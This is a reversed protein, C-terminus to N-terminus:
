ESVRAEEKRIVFARVCRTHYQNLDARLVEDQREIMREHPKVQEGPMMEIEAQVSTLPLGQEFVRIAEDVDEAEIMDPILPVSPVCSRRGLYPPWVPHLLAYECSLLAKEEGWILVTFEADQLYQRPTIITNGNSRTKGVANLLIGGTGQVTHFDTMLQGMHDARVAVHIRESLESLRKDGRPYGLCCGLMGIVASKTPMNSTDRIDWRAREGWSQLPAKLKLRILKM